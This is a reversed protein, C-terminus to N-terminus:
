VWRDFRVFFTRDDRSRPVGVIRVVGGDAELWIRGEPRRAGLLGALMLGLGSLLLVSAPSATLGAGPLPTLRLDLARIAVEGRRHREDFGIPANKYVWFDEVGGRGESRREIRVAPGLGGKSGVYDRVVYKAPWRFFQFQEGAMMDFTGVFGSSMDKVELFARVATRNEPLPMSLVGAGVILLMLGVHSMMPAIRGLPSTEFMMTVRSGDVGEAAPAGLRARFNERLAEVAREPLAATLEAKLPANSPAQALDRGKGGSASAIAVAVLNAALLVGLARMWESTFLDTLGWAALTHIGAADVSEALELAERGQPVFATIAVAFALLIVLVSTTRESALVLWLREVLGAQAPAAASDNTRISTEAQTM